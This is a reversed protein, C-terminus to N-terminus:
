FINELSKENGLIKKVGFDVVRYLNVMYIKLIEVNSFNVNKCKPFEIVIKM